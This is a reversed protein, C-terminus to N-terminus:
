TKYESHEKRHCNACLVKCKKIEQKIREKSTNRRSVLETVGAEKEDEHHFDLCAPHEEGCKLCKLKKKYQKFWEKLERRRSKTRQKEKERNKYYYRQYPSLEKWDKEEPKPQLKDGEKNTGLNAARKARNWTGFKRVITDASPYIDLEQYGCMSFNRDLKKSAKKLSKICDAKSYAM